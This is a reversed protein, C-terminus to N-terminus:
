DKSALDDSGLTLMCWRFGITCDNVGRGGWGGTGVGVLGQVLRECPMSVSVRQGLGKSRCGM